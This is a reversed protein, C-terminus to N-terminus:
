MEKKLVKSEEYHYKFQGEVCDIYLIGSKINQYVLNVIEEVVHREIMRRVERAGYKEFELKSILFDIALDTMDITLNIDKELLLKQEIYKLKNRIIIKIDEKNLTNFILIEDLRNIIEPRIKSELAKKYTGIKELNTNQTVDFGVKNKTVEKAGINTTLFIINNSFDVERQRNDTAKGEDFIHIFVDLVNDHGKEIEDLLIIANPSKKVRDFVTTDEKDNYGLYGPPSGLIKSVTHEEQYEGMDIRILNEKDINSGDEAKKENNEKINKSILKVLETKGVGTPGALLIVAKAGNEKSLGIDAIKIRNIVKEIVNDQGIIKEKLLKELNLYSMNINTKEQLVEKDNTDEENKEQMQSVAVGCEITYILQALLTHIETKESEYNDVMMSIINDFVIDEYLDMVDFFPESIRYTPDSSLQLEVHYLKKFVEESVQAMKLFINMFGINIISETYKFSLAAESEDIIFNSSFKLLNTIRKIFLALDDSKGLKDKQICKDLNRDFKKLLKKILSFSVNPVDYNYVLNAIGFYFKIVENKFNYKDLYSINEHMNNISDKMEMLLYIFPNFEVNHDYNFLYTIMDKSFNAEKLVILVEEASLDCEDLYKNLSDMDIDLLELLENKEKENVVEM